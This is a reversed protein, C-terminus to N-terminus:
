NGDLLAREAPISVNEIRQSLTSRFRSKTLRDKIPGYISLFGHHPRIAYFKNTLLADLERVVGPNCPEYQNDHMPLNKIGLMLPWVAQNTHTSYVDAGVNSVLNTPPQVCYKNKTWMPLVLPIDWADIKGALSRIRGRAWFSVRPNLNIHSAWHGSELMAIKIEKWRDKWTAWGWILPYHSFVPQDTNLELEFFQNGSIVWVDDNQKYDTLCKDAFNVFNTNFVLDDELILGQEEHQFFWDIATVVSVAAGLNKERRWIWVNVEQLQALETLAHVLQNQIESVEPTRPGDIALYINKAGCAFLTPLFRLIHETRQYAIILVATQKNM